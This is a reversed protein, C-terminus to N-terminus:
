HMSDIEWPVDKLVLTGHVHKLFISSWMTM